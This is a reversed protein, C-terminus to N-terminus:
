LKKKHEKSVYTSPNGMLIGITGLIITVVRQLWSPSAALFQEGMRDKFLSMLQLINLSGNKNSKGDYDLDYM